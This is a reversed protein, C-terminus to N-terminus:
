AIDILIRNKREVVRNQQPNRPDLFNQSIKNEACFEEVRPNEFETGNDSRIKAIKINSSIFFTFVLFNFSNISMSNM